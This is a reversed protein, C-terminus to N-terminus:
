PKLIKDILHATFDHDEFFALEVAEDGYRVEVQEISAVQRGDAMACVPRRDSDLVEVVVRANSPLAVPSLRPRHPCIPTVLMAEVAPHLPTGGASYSYATSGLATAVVIGDCGLSDVVERGDVTLRLRAALGSERQLYIDNMAQVTVLEGDTRVIRGELLPFRSIRWEAQVLRDVLADLSVDVDNMLFGLYGSNLGLFPRATGHTEVANLMFGDGGLVVNVAPEWESPLRAALEAALAMAKPNRPDSLIM